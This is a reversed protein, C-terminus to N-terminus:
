CLSHAGAVFHCRTVFEQAPSELSAIHGEEEHSPRGELLPLLWRRFDDTTSMAGGAAAPRAFGFVLVDRPLLRRRWLTFLTPLLKKRALNGDAGFVVISTLQNRPVPSLLERPIKPGRM